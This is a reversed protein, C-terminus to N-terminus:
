VLFYYTQSSNKTLHLSFSPYSEKFERTDWSYIDGTKKLSKYNSDFIEFHDINPQEVSIVFQELKSINKLNCKLLYAETKNGFLLAKKNLNQWQCTNIFEANIKQSKNVFSVQLQNTLNYRKNDEDIVTKGGICFKPM